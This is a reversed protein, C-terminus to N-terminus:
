VGIYLCVRACCCGAAAMLLVMDGHVPMMGSAWHAVLVTCNATASEPAM